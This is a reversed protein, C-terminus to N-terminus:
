EEVVRELKAIALYKGYYANFYNQKSKTLLYNADILDSTKSLGQAVKDQVITYNVKAQELAKKSTTLNLKAVDFDEKAKEYQLKIELKLNKLQMKTQKVKKLYIFSDSNDKQGNYLNWSVSVTAVNQDEPYGSRATSLSDTGYQNNSFTANVKPFYNGKLASSKSQYSNLMNTLAKIESRNDLSESNFNKNNSNNLEEFSEDTKGGLINELEKKAIVVASKASQYNQKAQLMEVEVQLIENKAILGQEFFNNSDYHQKEYLKLAELNTKSEKQKLLYNIYSNKVNYILDQKSAEFTYKSYDYMNKSAEVNYMDSLGNFLNLTLTTSLTTDKEIQGSILKDRDNYTYSVDLKPHYASQSSTLSAKSEDVKFKEQKLAFNNKLALDVASNIDLAYANLSILFSTLLIKNRM